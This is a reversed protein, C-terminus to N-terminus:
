FDDGAFYLMMVSLFAAAATVLTGLGFLVWRSPTRPLGMWNLYGEACPGACFALNAVFAGAISGVWFGADLIFPLGLCLTELVLLGNFVVRLREWAVFVQKASPEPTADAPGAQIVSFPTSPALYVNEIEQM